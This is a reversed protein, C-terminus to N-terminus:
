NQPYLGCYRLKTSMNFFIRAANKPENAAKQTDSASQEIMDIIAMNMIIPIDAFLV